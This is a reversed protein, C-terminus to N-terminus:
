VMSRVYKSSGTSDNLFSTADTEWLLYHLFVRLCNFGLDEAWTLEEDIRDLNFTDPQFMELQNIAYSPIYNCGCLWPLKNYWTLARDLDWPFNM